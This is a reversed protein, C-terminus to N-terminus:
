VMQARASPGAGNRNIVHAKILATGVASTLMTSSIMEFVANVGVFACIFLIVNRGDMLEKVYNTNGFFIVIASMFFATNLFASFFGTVACSLAPHMKRNLGRFIYGLVFGDLMRPGFCLVATLVPSISFLIGTMGAGKLAHLFSTLGFIAGAAAGGSPGMAIAAVAVPIMNFTISLPGINLYGLPTYAMLFLIAAILSMLVLNRTKSNTNM